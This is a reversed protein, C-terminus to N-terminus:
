QENKSFDLRYFEYWNIISITLGGLAVLVRSIIVGMIGCGLLLGLVLVVQFFSLINTRHLIRKPVATLKAKLAAEFIMKPFLFVSTVSLLQM